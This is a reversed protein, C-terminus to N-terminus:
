QNTPIQRQNENVLEKNPIDNLFILSMDAIVPRAITRTPLPSVYWAFDSQPIQKQMGYMSMYFLVRIDPLSIGGFINAEGHYKQSDSSPLRKGKRLQTVRCCDFFTCACLRHRQAVRFYVNLFTIKPISGSVM